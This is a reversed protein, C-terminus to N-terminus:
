WRVPEVPKFQSIQGHASDRDPSIRSEVSGCGVTVSSFLLLSALLISRTM